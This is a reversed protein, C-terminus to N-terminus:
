EGGKVQGLAFAIAQKMEMARGEAWAKALAARDMHARLGSVAPEYDRREMATMDSKTLERLAEAAGLLRAARENQGQAAAMYAFCELEHAVAARQGLDQFTYITERYVAAAEAYRGQKRFLHGMESRSSNYMSPDRIKQFLAAAEEFYPLAEAPNGYAMKVRGVNTLAMALAWPNGSARATRITEEGFGPPVPRNMLVALFMEMGVVTALVFAFGHQRSLDTSEKSWTQATDIEGLFGCITSGLAMAYALTATANVRRALAVSAEIATRASGNDGIQFAMAAEGLLALARANLYPLAGDGELHISAEARALAVKVWAYGETASLRRAWFIPLLVAMRLASLPDNEIAWEVAARLNDQEPELEDLCDIMEPGTLRPVSAESLKVFFELHRDRVRGAEGVGADLLKERAYQRITELLFYRMESGHDETVVLSKNVLQELHELTDPDDSVAELAELTWGGVFVSAIRLLRKEEESLLDYSWDILARLTQQRPLATRSGGILLRFRDDLRAAIQEPTLLKVRAAALEIALPIGDLRSCIKAISSANTETLNFRPNIARAREAFLQAAESDVLSPIRYAVEGAIGLAERSSAIIKLGPCHHLLDDALRACAAILHECNDLILLAKKDGLYDTVLAAMPTVPQEQLGFVQALAPMIQAPDALPALEIFWAGHTFASLEQVSVEQALRTKGTGGSGTLTVLRASALLRKIEAIENQRGVFSTLQTPLNNPLSDLSRIPPFESPLSPHVLQYVHEPRMLDKLRHEGLDHLAAHAPLAAGALEATANSILIQGGHGVSMLRAARNLAPGFYDGARAEAEGTHVGMRVRVTKPQIEQWPEDLLAQQAALAAQIAGAASEFAALCGDGTTKVVEGHNSEVARQLIADHRALVPKMADPYLEWLHTSSEIDTFLFTVIGAPTSESV